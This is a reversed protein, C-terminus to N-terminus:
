RLPLPQLAAVPLAGVLKRTYPHVPTELVARAEGTEVIRGENLVAITHCLGAAALLDHTIFLMATGHTENLNRFLRLIEAQTIVDVSSTPEDAILLSPKHLVSMAILVRQAMGVSIQAPVQKLFADSSPLSVGELATGAEARWDGDRGRHVQWTERLHEGITRRPNLAAVASQPVLALERGRLRRLEKESLKLLDIGGFKASGAIRVARRDHLGLLAMALTSKGSGSQGVLGVIEGSGIKLELEDLVCRRGAYEVTLRADLLAAQSM